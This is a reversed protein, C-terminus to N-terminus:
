AGKMSVYKQYVQGNDTMEKYVSAIESVTFNVAEPSIGEAPAIDCEAIFKLFALLENATFM